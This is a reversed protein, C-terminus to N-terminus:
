IASESKSLIENVNYYKQIIFRKIGLNESM